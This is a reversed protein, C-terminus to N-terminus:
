HISHNESPAPRADTQPPAPQNPSNAPQKCVQAELLAVADHLRDATSALYVSTQVVTSHGLWRSVTHLAVGAELLRSAAERRLDHLHLDVVGATACTADIECLREVADRRVASLAADGGLDTIIAARKETLAARAETLVRARHARSRLGHVWQSPNGDQFQTATGIGNAKLFRGHADRGAPPIAVSPPEAPGAALHEGGDSAMRRQLNLGSDIIEAQNPPQASADTAQAGTEPRGSPGEAVLPPLDSAAIHHDTM